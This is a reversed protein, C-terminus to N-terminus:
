FHTDIRFALDVSNKDITDAIMATKFSLDAGVSIFQSIYSDMGFLFLGSPTRFSQEVQPNSVDLFRSSVGVGMRMTWTKNLSPKYLGRLTFERLRIENSDTNQTGFNAYSGELGWRSSMVDVGVNIVLGGQNQMRSNLAVADADFFTQALGLGIHARSFTRVERRYVQQDSLSRNEYTSLKSVIEDYSEYDALGISVSFLAFLFIVPKM